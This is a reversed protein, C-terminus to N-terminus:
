GNRLVEKYIQEIEEAYQSFPDVTKMKEIEDDRCGNKVAGRIYEKAMALTRKREDDDSDKIIKKDSNLDMYLNNFPLSNQVTQLYRKLMESTSDDLKQIISKLYPHDMNIEYHLGNRSEMKDWIHTYGSDMEKRQRFTYTRKSGITMTEILQKLRTKVIEPPYATSKKIDLTWLDDLSNPIDVKVRALKTMEDMKRLHFWTGWTLLRKNRYVYFGQLGRLGEKGGYKEMEEATMKSSHPLIFPKIIVAGDRGPIDIKEDDMVVSSKSIFFPDFPILKVGNIEINIKNGGEGALYRHFVLELHKRVENMKNELAKEITLSELQIRDLRQWIILTGHSAERLLDIFPFADLENQEEALERLSWKQTELIHDLDWQRAVIKKGKQKSMVTLCRCQSLSATKLGLGFRGLDKTSREKTPSVSGYRMAETIQQDDMGDGDDFVAIFPPDFTDFFISIKHANAAISNDIIDAIAAETSYGIARTSEMLVPAYPNCDIDRM